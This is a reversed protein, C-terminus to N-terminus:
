VRLKAEAAYSAPAATERLVPQMLIPRDPRLVIGPQPISGAKEPLLFRWRRSLAALIAIGELKAFAEGICMMAGAGFPFYAMTPAADRWREPLFEDPRLFYKPNRQTVYPSMMLTANQPITYGGLTLAEKPRRGFALAPPYLRMAEKFVWSTYTLRTLDDLTIPRDGLVADVEVHLKEEAEPHTALLSWAWTLATATTEHGALVLTIVENQLDENTLPRDEGDRTQLLLALVDKSSNQRRHAIIPQIIQELARRERRFFLSPGQPLVRRYLNILPEFLASLPAIWASRRIVRQLVLAIAEASERFNTGFLSTGVISLTLQKMARNMDIPATPQLEAAFRQAEGIMMEAYIAIQARHFAPQLVRRRERHLPENRTLLGDGVLERLLTAGTDRVFSHQRTVLIQQILDADDVVYVRQNLLRFYSLPGYRQATQQLFAVTGAVSGKGLFGLVQLGRPGPPKQM